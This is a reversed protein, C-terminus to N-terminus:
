CKQLPTQFIDVRCTDDVAIELGAIDEDVLVTIELDAVKAQGSNLIRLHGSIDGRSIVSRRLDHECPLLIINFNVDPTGTTDKCLHQLALRKERSLIV